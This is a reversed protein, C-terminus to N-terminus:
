GKTLFRTIQHQLMESKFPKKLHAIAGANMIETIATKNVVSSAIIIKAQANIQRIAKTTELGNMVPMEIDLIVFDPTVNKYLEVGIQGNEAEGIVEHGAAKVSEIQKQRALKSDDIVIFTAM